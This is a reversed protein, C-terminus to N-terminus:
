SLFINDATRPIQHTVWIHYSQLVQTRLLAPSRPHKSSHVIFFFFLFVHYLTINRIFIYTYFFTNFMRPLHPTGESKKNQKKANQFTCSPFGIDFSFSFSLVFFSILLILFTDHLSLRCCQAM